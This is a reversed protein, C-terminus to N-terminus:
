PTTCLTNFINMHLAVCNTVSNQYAYPVCMSVCMCVDCACERALTYTRKHMIYRINYAQIELLVSVRVRM